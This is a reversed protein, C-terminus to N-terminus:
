IAPLCLRTARPTRRLGRLSRAYLRSDADTSHLQQVFVPRPHNSFLYKANPFTPVWRGNEVRTNWGVHDGHLHTCMVIDIDDVTVGAAKLAQM